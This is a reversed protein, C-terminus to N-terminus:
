EFAKWWREIHLEASRRIGRCNLLGGYEEDAYELWYPLFNNGVESIYFDKMRKYDMNMIWSKDM